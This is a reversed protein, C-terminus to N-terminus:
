TIAVSRKLRSPAVIATMRPAPRMAQEGLRGFNVASGGSDLFKSAVTTNAQDSVAPSVAFPRRM